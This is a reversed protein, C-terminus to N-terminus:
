TLSKKKSREDLHLMKAESWLTAQDMLVVHMCVMLKSFAMERVVESAISTRILQFGDRARM